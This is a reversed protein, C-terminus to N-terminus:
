SVNLNTSQATSSSLTSPEHAKQGLLWAISGAIVLLVVLSMAMAVTRAPSSFLGTPEDGDEYADYDEDYEDLDEYEEYEADAEDIPSTEDTGPVEGGSAKRVLRPKSYRSKSYAPNSM